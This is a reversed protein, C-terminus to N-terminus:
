RTHNHEKVVGGKDGAYLVPMEYGAFEVMKGGLKEKHYKNLATIKV